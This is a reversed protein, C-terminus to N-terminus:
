QSMITRLHHLVGEVTPSYVVGERAKNVIMHALVSYGSDPLHIGDGELKMKITSSIQDYNDKKVLGDANAFSSSHTEIERALEDEGFTLYTTNEEVNVIDFKRGSGSPRPLSLTIDGLVGKETGAPIHPRISSKFASPFMRRSLDVDVVAKPKVEVPAYSGISQIGLAKPACAPPLSQIKSPIKAAPLTGMPVGSPVVVPIPAADSFTLGEFLESPVSAAVPLQKPVFAAAKPKAMTAGLISSGRPVHDDDDDLEFDSDSFNVHCESEEDDFSNEDFLDEDDSM